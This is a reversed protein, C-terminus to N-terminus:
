AKIQKGRLQRMAVAWLLVIFMRATMLPTSLELCFNRFHHMALKGIMSRASRQVRLRILIGSQIESLGGRPPREAKLPPNSLLGSATVPRRHIAITEPQRVVLKRPKGWRVVLPLGFIGRVMRGSVIIFGLM